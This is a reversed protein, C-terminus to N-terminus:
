SYKGWMNRGQIYVNIEDKWSFEGKMKIIERSNNKICSYWDPFKM